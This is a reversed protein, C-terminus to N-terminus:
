KASSTAAPQGSYTWGWNGMMNRMWSNPAYGRMMSGGAQPGYYYAEFNGKLEGLKVGGSFVLGLIVLKIIWALLRRKGCWHCMGGHMDHGMGKCCDMKGMGEGKNEM